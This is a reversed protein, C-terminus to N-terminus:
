RLHASLAGTVIRCTRRDRRRRRGPAAARRPRLLVSTLDVRLVEDWRADTCEPVTGDGLRRGSMGIAFVAATFGGRSGAVWAANV